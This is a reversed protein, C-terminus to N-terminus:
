AKMTASRTLAKGGQPGQPCLYLAQREKVSAWQGEDSQLLLPSSLCFVWRENVRVAQADSRLSTQWLEDRWQEIDQSMAEANGRNDGDSGWSEVVTDVPLGDM